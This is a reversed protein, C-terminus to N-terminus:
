LMKEKQVAILDSPKILSMGTFGGLVEILLVRDPNDLDVKNKINTAVAEILDRSHISTFRKEVTVRFTENESMGAFLEAAAHKVEEINTQIVKQIPIIRFAYRFEYPKEQLMVRFKEIAEVPNLATKAVVLGRIGIKDAKAEADGAEKLLFTLEHCMQRENGRMTSALLNFDVLLMSCETIQSICRLKNRNIGRVFSDTLSPLEVAEEDVGIGRSNKLMSKVGSFALVISGGIPKQMTNSNPMLYTRAEKSEAEVSRSQGVGRGRKQM